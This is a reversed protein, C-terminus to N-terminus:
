RLATYFCVGDLTNSKANARQGRYIEFRIVDDLNEFEVTNLNDELYKELSVSKDHMLFYKLLVSM